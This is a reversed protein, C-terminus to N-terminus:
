IDSVPSFGNVDDKINTWVGATLLAIVGGEGCYKGSSGHINRNFVVYGNIEEETNGGHKARHEL